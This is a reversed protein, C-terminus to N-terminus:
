ALGVKNGGELPKKQYHMHTHTHWELLPKEGESVPANGEKMGRRKM